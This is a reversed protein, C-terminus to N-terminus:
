SKLGTRERDFSQIAKICCAALQVLEDRYNIPDDENVARCVEGFEEGIVRIMIGPARPTDTWKAIQSLREARIEEVILEFDEM